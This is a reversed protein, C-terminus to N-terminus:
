IGCRSIASQVAKRSGGRAATTPVPVLMTRVASKLVTKPDLRHAGRWRSCTSIAPTPAATRDPEGFELLVTGVPLGKLTLVYEGGNYPWYSSPLSAGNVSVAVPAKAAYM